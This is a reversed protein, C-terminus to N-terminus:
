RPLRTVILAPFSAHVVDNDDAGANASQREPKRQVRAPIGQRINSDAASILGTPTPM